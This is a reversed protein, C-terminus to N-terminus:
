EDVLFEKLVPNNGPNREEFVPLLCVLISLLGHLVGDDEIFPLSAALTTVFKDTVLPPFTEDNYINILLIFADGCLDKLETTTLYSM